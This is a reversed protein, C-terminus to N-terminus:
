GLARRLEAVPWGRRDTMLGIAQAMQRDRGWGAVAAVTGGRVYFATFEPKALDGDVVVEDWSAAHGVYDLRKRYHITWFYPVADYAVACGLMNLAAIRGHQEAVRWHEVRVREGDGRLPFAALDGAAYLGDAARLQADVDLGHDERLAVGHLVGTAPTAGLGAVVLDAELAAGSKLRVRQVQGNGELAAVEEGLHFVVGQQEHIRRFVNGIQPGVQREFPAQQPAVVAVEMGRERLSGSAEMGIFGAGIVVARRARGAVAVIADADAPTRLLFVNALQAGPLKLPRPVSGTALLAADYALRAGDAFTVVRAVSDLAAVERAVREIRHTRYFEEEQLPTKEGGKQGSLAYKSLVTRDYPLRDEQSIMVVRGAFGEERLTQAAVAGAAGAGVIVFCRTDTEAPAAPEPRGQAEGAAVHVRGDAIRVPYSKLNDVAPPEVRSGTAVCFAAKHWPCIVTGGHLAGEALPGGAHPCVADIAHCEGGIRVLLIKRGSAEVACMAGDALDADALVDYEM